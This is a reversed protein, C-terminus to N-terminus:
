KENEKSKSAAEECLYGDHWAFHHKLESFRAFPNAIIPVGARCADRGALAARNESMGTIKRM